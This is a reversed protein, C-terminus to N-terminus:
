FSFVSGRTAGADIELLELPTIATVNTVAVDSHRLGEPRLWGGYCSGLTMKYIFGLAWLDAIRHGLLTLLLRVALM